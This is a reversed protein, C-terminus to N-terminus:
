SLTEALQRRSPSPRPTGAAKGPAEAATGGKHSAYRRAFGKLMLQAPEWPWRLAGLKGPPQDPQHQEDEQDGPEGGQAKLAARQQQIQTSTVAAAPDLKLRKAKRGEQRLARKAAKRDAKKMYQLGGPDSEPEFYHQPPIMDVLADFFAAHARIAAADM